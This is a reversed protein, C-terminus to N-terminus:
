RGHTERVDERHDEGDEPTIFAGAGDETELHRHLHSLIVDLLVVEVDRTIDITAIIDM